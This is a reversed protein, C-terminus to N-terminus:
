SGWIFSARNLGNRLIMYVSVAKNEAGRDGRMRSPMGYQGVAQLLVSLVTSACNNTSARLGTIQSLRTLLSIILAYMFIKSNQLLWRSHWPDRNGLPHPQPAWRSAVNCQPTFCPVTHPPHRLRRGLRDVRRISAFVRRRQIRLGHSRLCGILYRIGSDPREARFQRVFADLDARLLRSFKYLLNNEKMRSMLTHRSVGLIRALASISIHRKTSLAEALYKTNIIKRPRGRRGTRIVEVPEPFAVNSSDRAEANTQADCLEKVLRAVMYACEHVWSLPLSEDLAQTELDVLMPIVNETLAHAHFQPRRRPHQVLVVM